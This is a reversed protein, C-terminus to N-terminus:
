PRRPKAERLRVARVGARVHPVSGHVGDDGHHVDDVHADLPIPHAHLVCGYEYAHQTSAYDRVNGPHADDAYEDASSRCDEIYEAVM